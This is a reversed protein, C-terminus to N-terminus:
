RAETNVRPKFDAEIIVGNATILRALADPM